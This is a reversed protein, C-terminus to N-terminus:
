VSNTITYSCYLTYSVMILIGRVLIMSYVKHAYSNIHSVGTDEGTIKHMPRLIRNLLPTALILFNFNILNFNV